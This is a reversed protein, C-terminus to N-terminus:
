TGQRKATLRYTSGSAVIETVVYTYGDSYPITSNVKLAGYTSHWYYGTSYLTTSYVNVSGSGYQLMYKYYATSGFSHVCGTGNRTSTYQGCNSCKYGTTYGSYS